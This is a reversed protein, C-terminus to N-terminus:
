RCMRRGRFQIMLATSLLVWASPEPVDIILRPFTDLNGGNFLIDYPSSGQLDTVAGGFAWLGGSLNMAEIAADNLSVSVTGGSDNRTYQLTGYVTGTALDDFTTQPTAASRLDAIASTVDYLTWTGVGQTSVSAGYDTLDSRFTASVIPARISSLDFVFFNRYESDTSLHVHGVIYNTNSPQHLVGGGRKEYWGSDVPQLLQPAALAQRAFTLQLLVYCAALIAQRLLRLSCFSTEEVSRQAGSANM